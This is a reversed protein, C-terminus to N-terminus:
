NEVQMQEDKWTNSTIETNNKANIKDEIKKPNNSSQQMPHYPM